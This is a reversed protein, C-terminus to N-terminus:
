SSLSGNFAEVYKKLTTGELGPATNVEFVYIDPATCFDVAGFDLGIAKTANICVEEMEKTLPFSGLRNRMYIWNNQHNRVFMNLDKTGERLGKVQYDIVKGQFVHVRYERRTGLYKTYLHAPPVEVNAKPEIVELGEGSHGSLKHRVCVIHGEDLWQKAQAAKTTYPVVPVKAHALVNLTSIKNAAIAISYPINLWEEGQGQWSPVLSNGWNIVRDPPNAFIATPRVRKIDLEEAIAKASASGMKYPYIIM